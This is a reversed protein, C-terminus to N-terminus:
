LYHDPRSKLESLLLPTVNEGMGIIKLYAQNSFMQLPSSAFATEKKWTSVLNAFKQNVPMQSVSPSQEIFISCERNVMSLFTNNVAEGVIQISLLVPLLRSNYRHM